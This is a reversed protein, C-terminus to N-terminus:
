NRARQMMMEHVAHMGREAMATVEAAHTQLAAVVEPDDSTQTVVIGAVSLEVTNELAEPRDFFIGLTPSQIRIKPDDGREVRDLMGAVHSVLVDMVEPDSSRTITRIGNPLNEVSRSLSRFNRFLIAIEESEEPSANEGRLGPMTQTNHTHGDNHNTQPVAPTAVLVCLIVAVCRQIASVM